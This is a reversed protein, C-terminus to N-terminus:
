LCISFMSFLGQKIAIQSSATDGGRDEIQRLCDLHFDQLPWRYRVCHTVVMTETKIYTYTIEYLPGSRCYNALLQLKGCSSVPIIRKAMQVMQVVVQKEKNLKVQIVFILTGLQLLYWQRDQCIYLKIWLVDFRYFISRRRYGTSM